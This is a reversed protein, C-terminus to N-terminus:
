FPSECVLACRGIADCSGEDCRQQGGSILATDCTGGLAVHDLVRLACRSSTPDCLMDLPCGTSTARPDCAGDVDSWPSCIGLTISVSGSSSDVRLGSCPHRDGCQHAGDCTMGDALQARCRSTEADCYAGEACPGAGISGLGGLGGLGSPTPCEEGLRALPACQNDLCRLGERCGSVIGSGNCSEGESRPGQCVADVCALGSACGFIDVGCADGKGSRARCINGRDDCYSDRSCSPGFGGGCPEGVPIEAACTGACGPDGSWATGGSNQGTTCRGSICEHDDFCEGGAAMRGIYMGTCQFITPSGCAADSLAVLCNAERQRDVALRGDAIAAETAYGESERGLALGDLFPLSGYSEARACAAEESAGIYGCRAQYDCVAAREIGRRNGNGADLCGTM